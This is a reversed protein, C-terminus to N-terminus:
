GGSYVPNEVSNATGSDRECTRHKRVYVLIILVIVLLILCILLAIMAWIIYVNADRQKLDSLTPVNSMTPRIGSTSLQDVSYSVPSTFSITDGPPDNVHSPTSTQTTNPQTQDPNATSSTSVAVCRPPRESWFGNAMCVRQATGRLEFGEQCSYSANSNFETSEWFVDGNLPPPLRGCTM